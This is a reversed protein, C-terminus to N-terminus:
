KWAVFIYCNRIGKNKYYSITGVEMCHLYSSGTEGTWRLDLTPQWVHCGEVKGKEKRAIFYHTHFVFTNMKPWKSKTSTKRQRSKRTGSTSRAEPIKRPKNISIAVLLTPHRLNPIPPPHCPTSFTTPPFFSFSTNSLHM